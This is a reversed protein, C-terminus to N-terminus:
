ANEGCIASGANAAPRNTGGNERSRIVHILGDNRHIIYRLPHAVL